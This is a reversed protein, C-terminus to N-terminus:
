AQQLKVARVVGEDDTKLKYGFRQDTKPPQNKEPLASKRFPLADGGKEPIIFGTGATEDFTKIKGYHTMTMDKKM